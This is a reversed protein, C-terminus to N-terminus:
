QQGSKEGKELRSVAFQQLLQLQAPREEAPHQSGGQLPSLVADVTKSLICDERLVARKTRQRQQRASRNGGRKRRSPPASGSSCGGVMAGQLPQRGVNSEMQKRLAEVDCALVCGVKRWIQTRDIKNRTLYQCCERVTFREKKKLSGGWFSCMTTGDSAM